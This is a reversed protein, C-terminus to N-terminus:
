TESDVYLVTLSSSCNGGRLATQWSLCASSGRGRKTGTPSPLTNETRKSPATKSSWPRSNNEFPCVSERALAPSRLWYLCDCTCRSHRTCTRGAAYDIAKIKCGIQKQTTKLIYFGAISDGRAVPAILKCSGDGIGTEASVSCCFHRPFIDRGGWFLQSGLIPGNQSCLSFTYCPYPPYQQSAMTLWARSPDRQNPTWIGVLLLQKAWPQSM